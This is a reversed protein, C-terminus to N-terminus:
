PVARAPMGADPEQQPTQWIAHALTKPNGGPSNQLLTNGKAEKKQATDSWGM